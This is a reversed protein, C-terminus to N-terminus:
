RGNVEFTYVDAGSINAAWSLAGHGQYAGFNPTALCTEGTVCLGDDNGLGDGTLERAHQIANAMSLDSWTHNAYSAFTPFPIQITFDISSRSWDVISGDGNWVFTCSAQTRM